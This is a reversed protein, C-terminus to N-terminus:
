PEILCDCGCDAFAGDGDLMDMPIERFRATRGGVGPAADASAAARAQGSVTSRGGGHALWLASMQSPLAHLLYAEVVDQKGKVRLEPL